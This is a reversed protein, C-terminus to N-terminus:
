MYMPTGVIATSELDDADEKWQEALGLDTIMIHGDGTILVNEAKLDQYVISHTHMWELALIIETVYFQTCELTELHVPVLSPAWRSTM